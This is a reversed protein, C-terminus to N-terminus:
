IKHESDKVYQRAAKKPNRKTNRGYGVAVDMYPYSVALATAGHTYCGYNNMFGAVTGGVLPTGERLVEWVGNLFEQFGGHKEYHITSFM